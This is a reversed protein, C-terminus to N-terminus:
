TPFFFFFCVQAWTSNSTEALVYVVGGANNPSETMGLVLLGQGMAISSIAANLPPLATTKLTSSYDYSVITLM